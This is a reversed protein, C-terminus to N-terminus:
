FQHLESMASVFDGVILKPIVVIAREIASHIEELESQKPISLVYGSVDDKFESKGIGIRMRWFNSDGLQDIINQVGNHGNAGGGKKLRVVGPLFDLEDHIVLISDVALKYFKVFRGVADGSLNMFTEPLLLECEHDAISIGSTFGRFKPELRFNSHYKEALVRALWFGVNHRTNEYQSGPNGLGVILKIGSEM